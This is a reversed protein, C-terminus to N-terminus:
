LLPEIQRKYVNEWTYTRHIHQRLQYGPSNHLYAALQNALIAANTDPAFYHAFAGAIERLPPIDACFIPLGALGAELMPIGFGEERSPFLLVDALRYLDAIVSDPLYSDVIEALFHVATQLGLSARLAKLDDFYAQNTLNHPGPPGTVVLAAQPFIARLAATTEIALEINKRRTIRVPLLLLPAAQHLHLQQYLVATKAELKLFVPIDIGSPTVVITEPPLGALAALERRRLASVVVHKPSVEPWDQRLLEWPWGPHLEARYRPTTWALDHHWLILRPGQPQACLQRLAATLALNKHLSGVNHAIIVDAESTAAALAASVQQVLQGFNAPVEGRDLQKKAALIDPHLSDALPLPIFKVADNMARGRGAVIHTCHGAAAM